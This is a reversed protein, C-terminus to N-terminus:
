SENKKQRVIPKFMDHSAIDEVMDLGTKLIYTGRERKWTEGGFLQQISNISCVM